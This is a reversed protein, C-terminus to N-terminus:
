LVLRRKLEALFPRPFGPFQDLDDLSYFGGRHDRHDLVRKAQTMSMGLGRLDSLEARRLSVPKARVEAAATTPRRHPALGDAPQLGGREALLRELQESRREALLLRERMAAATERRATEVAAALEAATQEHGVALQARRRGAGTPRRRGARPRDEAAARLLEAQREAVALRELGQDADRDFPSRIQEAEAGM